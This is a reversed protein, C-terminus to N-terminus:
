KFVGPFSTKCIESGDQLRIFTSFGREGEKLTIIRAGNQFDIYTTRGGSFRGYGLAIGYLSALYDNDHDHGVFVGMVDKSELMATFMGSNVSAPCEDELRIGVPNNRENKYAEKYEPLAIHFFALAPLPKGENIQTLRASTHRYWQLQDFSFWGYGKVTDVKSYDNSDMCYLVASTKDNKSSQIELTIDSLGKDNKKNLNHPTATVIDAIESRTLDQEADHNGMVICFPIGKQALPTLVMEWGKRAPKGTVVDGTFVILDPHEKDLMENILKIADLSEAKGPVVHTDTFQVIKFTGDKHFRLQQANLEGLFAFVILLILILQKKM